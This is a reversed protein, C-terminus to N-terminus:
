FGVASLKKVQNREEGNYTTITVDAVAKNGMLSDVVEELDFPEELVAPDLDLAILNLKLSWLADKGLGHYTFLKRGNYTTDDPDSITYDLRFNDAKEGAPPTYKKGSLSVLYKGMPVVNVVGDMDVIIGPM